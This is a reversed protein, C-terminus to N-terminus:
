PAGLEIRLANTMRFPESPHRSAAFVGQAFFVTDVLGIRNPIRIITISPDTGNWGPLTRSGTLPAGLLLEGFRPIDVGCGASSTGSDRSFILFPTAGAVQGDHMALQIERGVLPKGAKLSLKGANGSCGPVDLVLGFDVFVATTGATQLEVSGVWFRGNRSISFANESGNVATVLEGGVRTRGAQTIVEYNRMFADGTSGRVHWFVDGNNALHLVSSGSGVRGVVPLIDQAQVFKEGNKVILFTDNGSGVNGSILYQGRDNLSVKGLALLTWDKGVPSPTGVRAVITEMNIVYAAAVDDDVFTIFDGQENLSLVGEGDGLCQAGFLRIGAPITMGETGLVTSSLVAGVDDLQYRVLTKERARRPDPGVPNVVDGLVLMTNSSNMQVVNFRDWDTPQPFVPSVVFEDKLAVKTLNWYVGDILTGTSTKIKIIMALNGSNTLNISTWEDLSAGVPSVLPTLERLAVFGNSLLCNDRTTDSFSTDLLLMWRKSDTVAMSTMAEMAGLGIVTDSDHILSTATQAAAPPTLGLVFGPLVGLFAQAHRM